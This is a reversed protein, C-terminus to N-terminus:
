RRGRGSFSSSGMSHLPSLPTAAMAVLSAVSAVLAAVLSSGTLLWLRLEASAPWIVSKRTLLVQGFVGM